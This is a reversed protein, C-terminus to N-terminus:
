PNWRNVPGPGDSPGGDAAHASDLVNASEDGTAWGLPLLPDAATALKLKAVAVNYGFLGQFYRTKATLLLLHTTLLDEYFKPVDKDEVLGTDFKSRFSELTSQASEVATAAEVTRRAMEETELFADQVQQQVARILLRRQELIQAKMNATQRVQATRRGSSFIPMTATVGLAWETPDNPNPFNADDAITNYSAFAAVNPFFEAKAIRHELGAINTGLAAKRLEPRQSIAQEQLTDLDVAYRETPLHRSEIEILEAQSLGMALKLGALARERSVQMGVVQENYLARFTRARLVDAMTVYADGDDVFSQALREVGEAYGSAESAAVQLEESLVTLFYARSVNFAVENKTAEIDARAIGAGAKAQQFRSQIKGHTWLPQILRIQSTVFNRGLLEAQITQPFAASLAQKTQTFAPGNLDDLAAIAAGSGAQRAIEFFSAAEILRDGLEGGLLNVDVTRPEDIFTYRMDALIDPGMYSRAVDAQDLAANYGAHSAGVAPHQEIATAICIELSLANPVQQGAGPSSSLTAVVTAFLV